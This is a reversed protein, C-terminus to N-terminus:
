GASRPQEARAGQPPAVEAAVDPSLPSVPSVPSAPPPSAPSSGNTAAGTGGDPTSWRMAPEPEPRTLRWFVVTAVTILVALVVLAIIVMSLRGSADDSVTAAQQALALGPM